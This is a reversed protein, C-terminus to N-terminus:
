SSASAAFGANLAAAVVAREQELFQAAKALREGIEIPQERRVARIGLEMRRPAAHQAEHITELRRGRCEVGGQFAFGIPEHGQVAPRSDRHFLALRAGRIKYAAREPM